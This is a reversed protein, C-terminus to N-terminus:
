PLVSEIADLLADPDIPKVLFATAGGAMAQNQAAETPFATMLIVPAACGRRTMESQLELGTMGPMHLDTVVCAVRESFTSALLDEAHAFGIGRMGASRLLSDLSGRVGSDDDVIAILPSPAVLIKEPTM